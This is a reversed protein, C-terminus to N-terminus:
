QDVEQTWSAVDPYRRSLEVPMLAAIKAAAEDRSRARVVVRDGDWVNYRHDGFVDLLDFPEGCDDALNDEDYEWLGELYWTGDSPDGTCEAEWTQGEGTDGDFMPAFAVPEISLHEALDPVRAVLEAVAGKAASETLYSAMPHWWSDGPDDSYMLVFARDLTEPM